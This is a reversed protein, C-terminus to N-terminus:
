DNQKNDEIEIVLNKKNHKSYYMGFYEKVTFLLNQMAELDADEKNESEEIVVKSTMDNEAFKGTLIYGNQSAEIVLRFMTEAGRIRTGDPKHVLNHRGM